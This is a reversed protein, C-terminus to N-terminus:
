DLYEVTFRGKGSNRWQLTGGFQGYELLEKIWKEHKKDVLGVKFTATSGAPVTESSALSITEGKPTQGRLPRQCSGMKGGNLDIPIKRPAPFIMKDIVQKYATIKSSETRSAKKLAKAADKFFGKIQYDWMFPNGNEDKPFITTAAQAVEDVGLAEIEEEISAADPAKSAIFKKHIDPNPNETGLAEEIFTIKVNMYKEILGSGENTSKKVTEKAM